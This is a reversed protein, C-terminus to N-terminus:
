APDSGCDGVGSRRRRTFLIDGMGSALRLYTSVGSDTMSWSLQFGEGGFSGRALGIERAAMSFTMGNSPTRFGLPRLLVDWLTNRVYRVRAFSQCGFCPIASLAASAAQPRSATMDGFVQSTAKWGRVTSNRSSSPTSRLYM